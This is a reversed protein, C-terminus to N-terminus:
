ICSMAFARRGGDYKGPFMKVLRADTYLVLNARWPVLFRYFPDSEIPVSMRQTCLLSVVRYPTYM